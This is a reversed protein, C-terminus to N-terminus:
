PGRIYVLCPFCSRSETPPHSLGPPRAGTCPCGQSQRRPGDAEPSNEPTTPSETPFCERFLPPTDISLSSAPFSQRRSSSLSVQVIPPPPQAIGMKRHIPPPTIQSFSVSDLISERRYHEQREMQGVVWEYEQDTGKEYMSRPRPAGQRRRWHREAGELSTTSAITTVQVNEEMRSDVWGVVIPLPSRAAPDLPSQHIDKSQRSAAPLGREEM